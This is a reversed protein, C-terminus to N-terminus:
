RADPAGTRVRRLAFADFDARFGPNSAKRARGRLWVSVSDAPPRVPDGTWDVFVGHLAPLTTWRITTANPDADQGTPDIGVLAGRNPDAPWSSRIRGSLRYTEAKALGAIRQVWGGDVSKAGPPGSVRAIRNSPEAGDPVLAATTGPELVFAKWAAPSGDEGGAQEEMSGNRLLDDGDVALAHDPGAHEYEIVQMDLDFDVPEKGEFYATGAPYDDPPCKRYPNFGPKGDSVEGKINVFGHLTEHTEISEIEVAYTAGPELPVEGPSFAAGFVGWSADGTYNGNGIAIKEVGVVPGDPGGRRVRVAARQRALEPQKGSVAAYLIVGALGRGAAVYTQSWRRAIRTLKSFPKHVRKAYPILLGDADSGIGIWLTKEVLGTGDAAERWAGRTGPVADRWFAQFTGGSSAAAIRAAYVRGPEVPVEGSAWGASWVYNKAGGTDVDLVPVPPGIAPWTDPAGEGVVHISVVLDQKGPGVGDVGDTALRFGVSTVSKGRPTFPQWYARAPKRDWDREEFSGIDLRPMVRRDVVEGACTFVNGLIVPRPFSAPNSFLMTYRGELGAMRYWGAPETEWSRFGLAEAGPGERSAFCLIGSLPMLEDSGVGRTVALRGTLVAQSPLTAAGGILVALTGPVLARSMGHLM